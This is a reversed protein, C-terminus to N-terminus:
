MQPSFGKISQNLSLASITSSTNTIPEVGPTRTVQGCNMKAQLHKNRKRRKKLAKKERLDKFIQYTGKEPL